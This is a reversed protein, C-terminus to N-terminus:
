EEIELIFGEIVKLAKFVEILGKDKSKCYWHLNEFNSRESSLDRWYGLETEEKNLTLNTLRVRERLARLLEKDTVEVEVQKIETKVGALKM